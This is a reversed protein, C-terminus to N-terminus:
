RSGAMSAPSGSIASIARARSYAAQLAKTWIRVSGSRRLINDAAITTGRKSAVRQFWDKPSLNGRKFLEAAGTLTQRVLQNAESETFGLARAAAVLDRAFAFFYGPGSGSVATIRDIADDSAVQMELGFASFINRTQRQDASTCAPAALWGTMGLGVTSALNPMCRIVRNHNLARCLAKLTVGAMISIVLTKAILRGKLEHLLQQADQPKVSLIVVSASSISAASTTAVAKLGLRRLLARKEANHEVLTLSKRTWRRAKILQQALASGMTGGGIIVIESNTM